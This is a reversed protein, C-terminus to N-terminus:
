CRSVPLHGKPRAVGEVLLVPRINTALTKCGLWGDFHNVEGIVASLAVVQPQVGRKRAALLNTLLLEVGIGRTPDTVFQAEDLVVLGIKSLLTPVAVSLGLFMEFTLIAIDYQGKVFPERQDAYDGTCRLM